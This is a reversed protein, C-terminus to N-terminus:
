DSKSIINSTKRNKALRVEGFAGKGILNYLEYNKLCDKQRMLRKKIDQQIKLEKELSLKQSLPM